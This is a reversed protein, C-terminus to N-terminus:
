CRSQCRCYLVSKTGVKKIYNSNIIVFSSKFNLFFSIIFLKKDTDFKSTKISNEKKERSRM